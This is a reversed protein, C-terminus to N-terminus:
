SATSERAFTVILGGIIVLAMGVFAGLALKEGLVVAGFLASVVVALYGM